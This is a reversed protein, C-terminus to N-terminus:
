AQLQVRCWGHRPVKAPEPLSEEELQLLDNCGMAGLQGVRSMYTCM